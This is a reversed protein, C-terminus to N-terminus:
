KSLKLYDEFSFAPSCMEDLEPKDMNSRNKMCRYTMYAFMDERKEYFVTKTKIETLLGDKNYRDLALDISQQHPHETEQERCIVPNVPFDPVISAKHKLTNRDIFSDFFPLWLVLNDTWYKKLSACDFRSKYYFNEKDSNIATYLKILDQYGQSNKMLVIIKHENILSQENRVLRDDCLWIEIGFIFDINAKKVAKYAEPYSAFTNSIGVLRKVQNDVCLKVISQPGDPTIDKDPWYTLLSKYSDHTYSVLTIDNM